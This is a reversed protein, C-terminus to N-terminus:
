QHLVNKQSVNWIRELAKEETSAQYITKLNACFHKGDKDAVYKM